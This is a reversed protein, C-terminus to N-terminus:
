APERATEELLSIGAKISFRQTSIGGEDGVLTSFREEIPWNGMM